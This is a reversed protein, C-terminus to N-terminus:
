AEDTDDHEGGEDDKQFRWSLSPEALPFPNWGSTIAAEGRAETEILEVLAARNHKLSAILLPTMGSAPTILLKGTAYRITFPKM